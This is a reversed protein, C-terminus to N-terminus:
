RLKVSSRWCEWDRVGDGEGEYWGRGSGGVSAMENEGMCYGSESVGEWERM